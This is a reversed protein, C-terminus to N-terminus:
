VPAPGGAFLFNIVYFVDAVDRTGDGNADGKPEVEVSGVDCAAGIPRKVGRQDTTLPAGLHDLCGDPPGADIAASGPQPMWTATPGGNNALADLNASATSYGTLTCNNPQVVLNHGNSTVTGGGICYLDDSSASLNHNMVISSSLTILSGSSYIGGGSATMLNTGNNEITVNSFSMTAAYAYIGGGVGTALNNSVTSNEMALGDGSWIGGGQGSANGNLTSGKVLKTVSGGAWIGGGERDGGAVNGSIESDTVNLTTGPLGSFYVGGGQGLTTRNDWVFCRVLSLSGNSFIGGALDGGSGLSSSRRGGQITMDSLTVDAGSAVSLVRDLHNADVITRGRGAGQVTVKGGLALDGTDGDDSGTIAITLVYMGAPVVVTVTEATPNPGLTAEMFAARLTCIGNGTATECVGDIAADVLDGTSNVHYVLGAARAGYAALVLTLAFARRLVV